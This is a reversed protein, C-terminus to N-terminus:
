GTASQRELHTGIACCIVADKDEAQIVLWFAPMELPLSTKKHASERCLPHMKRQKQSWKGFAEEIYAARPKAVFGEVNGDRVALILVVDTTDFAIRAERYANLLDYPPITEALKQTQESTGPAFFLRTANM